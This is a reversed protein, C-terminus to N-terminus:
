DVLEKLGSELEDPCARAVLMLPVETNLIDVWNELVGEWAAGRVSNATDISTVASRGTGALQSNAQTM